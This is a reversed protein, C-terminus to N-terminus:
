NEILLKTESFLSVSCLVIHTNNQIM